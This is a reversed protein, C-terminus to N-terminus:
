PKRPCGLSRERAVIRDVRAKDRGAIPMDVARDYQCGANGFTSVATARTFCLGLDRFIQNRAVYLRDCEDRIDLAEPRVGRVVSGTTDPDQARRVVETTTTTKKYVVDGAQAAGGLLALSSFAAFTVARKM